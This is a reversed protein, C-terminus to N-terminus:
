NKVEKSIVTDYTEITKFFITDQVNKNNTHKLLFNNNIKINYIRMESFSDIINHFYEPLM